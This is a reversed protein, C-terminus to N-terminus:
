HRTVFDRCPKFLCPLSCRWSFKHRGLKLVVPLDLSDSGAFDLQISDGVHVGLSSIDIKVEYDSSAYTPLCRFNLENWSIRKGTEDTAQRGRFDVTLSQGNRAVILKLTGDEPAGNQISLQKGIDFRVYLVNNNSTASVTTIDFAGTNDHAPDAFQSISNWDDLIGDIVPTQASAFHTLIHFLISAVFLITLKKM